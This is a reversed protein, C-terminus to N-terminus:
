IKPCPRVAGINLPWYGEGTWSVRTKISISRTMCLNLSALSDPTNEWLIAIGGKKKLDEVNTWPSIPGDIEAVRPASDMWVGASGPVGRGNILIYEPESQTETQWLQKAQRALDPIDATYGPHPKGICVGAFLYIFFGALSAASLSAALRTMAAMPRRVHAAWLVGALVAAGPTFSLSWLSKLNRDLTLCYAFLILFPLMLTFYLYTQASADSRSLAFSTSAGGARSRRVFEFLIPVVFVLFIGMAFSVINNALVSVSAYFSGGTTVMAISKAEHSTLWLLHPSVILTFIAVAALSGGSFVRKRYEQHYLVVLMIPIILLMISYKALFGFGAALGLLCAAWLAGSSLFVYGAYLAAAWFPTSLTNHNVQVAFFTSAPSALLILVAIFGAEAGAIRRALAYTFGASILVCLQGLILMSVLPAGTASVMWASIFSGLPPHKPYGWMWDRGWYVMEITDTHLNTLLLANASVWLFAHALCAALALVVWNRSIAAPFADYIPAAKPRLSPNAPVLYHTYTM